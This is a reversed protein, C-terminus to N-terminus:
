NSPKIDREIAAKVDALTTGAYNLSSGGFVTSIGAANTITALHGSLPFPADTIEYYDSACALNFLTSGLTFKPTGSGDVITPTFTSLDVGLGETFSLTFLIRVDLEILAIRTSGEGSPAGIRVEINYDANQVLYVVDFGVPADCMNINDSSVFEYFNGDSVGSIVTIYAGVGNIKGEENPKLEMGKTNSLRILRNSLANLDLDMNSNSGVVVNDISADPHIGMNSNEEKQCAVIAAVAFLTLLLKKM